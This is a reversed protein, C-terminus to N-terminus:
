SHTESSNLTWLKELKQIQRRLAISRYRRHLLIGGVLAIPIAISMVGLYLHSTDATQVTQASTPPIASHSSSQKFM